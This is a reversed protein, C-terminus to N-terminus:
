RLKIEEVSIRTIGRRRVAGEKNKRTKRTKRQTRNQKGKEPEGIAKLGGNGRAPTEKAGRAVSANIGEARCKEMGHFFIKWVTSFDRITKWV